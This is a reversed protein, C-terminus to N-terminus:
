IMKIEKILGEPLTFTEGANGSILQTSNDAFTIEVQGSAPLTNYINDKLRTFTSGNTPIYSGWGGMSAGFIYIGDDNNHTYSANNDGDTMYVALRTANVTWKVLVELWDDVLSNIKYELVNSRVTGAVGSSLNIWINTNANGNYLYVWDKGGKKLFIRASNGSVNFYINSSFQGSSIPYVKTANVGQVPSPIANPIIQIQSSVWQTFDKSYTILNTTQPEVLLTPKGSSWDFRPENAQATKILGDKDVYTATSNRDVTFDGTGDSPKVSYAKSVKFGSSATWVLSANNFNTEGIADLETTLRSTDLTGGDDIVRTEHLGAILENWTFVQNVTITVTSIESYEVGDFARYTFSDSGYYNENPTYTFSGDINLTLNGNSTSAELAAQISNTDVDNALVGNESNVNLVGNQDVIYADPFSIPAINVDGVVITTAYLPHNTIFVSDYVKLDTAVQSNYDDGETQITSTYKLM